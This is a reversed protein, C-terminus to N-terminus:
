GSRRGAPGGQLYPYRDKKVGSRVNEEMWGEIERPVQAFSELAYREREPELRTIPNRSAARVVVARFAMEKATSLDQWSPLGAARLLRCLEPRPAVSPRPPRAGRSDM